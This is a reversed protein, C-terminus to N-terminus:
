RASGSYGAPNLQTNVAAWDGSGLGNYANAINQAPTTPSPHAPTSTGDYFIRWYEVRDVLQVPLDQGTAIAQQMQVAILNLLQGVSYFASPNSPVPVSSPATRWAMYATMTQMVPVVAWLQSVSGDPPALMINGGQDTACLGTSPQVIQCAAASGVISWNVSPNPQVLRVASGGIGMYNGVHQDRINFTGDGCPIIQWMQDNGPSWEKSDNTKVQSGQAGNGMGDIVRGSSPNCFLYYYTEQPIM